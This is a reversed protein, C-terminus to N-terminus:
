VKKDKEEAIAPAIDLEQTAKRSRMEETATEVQAATLRGALEHFHAETM